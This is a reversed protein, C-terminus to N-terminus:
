LLGGGFEAQDHALIVRAGTRAAALAATLGAPGGGVVLVDTHAFVRDYRGTDPETPLEGKAALSRAVLGPHVEVQTACAMPEGGGSDIQVFANPEAAGLDYMGRPRGTYPGRAITRVGHALLASALTDGPHAAYPRGDFHVTVTRSRDIRGGRDQRWPGSMADTRVRLDGHATRRQVMAPLRQHTGLTRRVM